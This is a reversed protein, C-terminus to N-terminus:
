DALTQIIRAVASGWAEIPFWGMDGGQSRTTPDDSKERAVKAFDEGNVIRQRLVDIKARAQESTIVDTMRVMLMRAHYETTTERASDDRREILQILSYGSPG